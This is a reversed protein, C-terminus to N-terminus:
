EQEMHLIKRVIKEFTGYGLLMDCYASVIGLMLLSWAGLCVPWILINLIIDTM